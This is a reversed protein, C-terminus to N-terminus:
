CLALSSSSDFPPPLRSEFLSQGYTRMNEFKTRRQRIDLKPPMQQKCIQITSLERDYRLKIDPCLCVTQPHRPRRVYATAMDYRAADLPPYPHAQSLVSSYLQPYLSRFFYIWRRHNASPFQLYPGDAQISCNIIFSKALFWTRM